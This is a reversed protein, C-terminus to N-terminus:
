RGGTKGSFVYEQFDCVPCYGIKQYIGNSTPNLLDAFLFCFRNSEDLAKQSVAAVCASAYGKNRHEPPTYVLSLRVGHLTKGVYAAMSLPGDDEFLFLRGEEVARSTMKEPDEPYDPMAEDVFKKAWSTALGIEDDTFARLHGLPPEPLPIVKDLKYMKMGLRPIVECGQVACWAKAFALACETRGIVGPLAVSRHVSDRVVLAIAEDDLRTVILNHPPTHMAAGIVEGNNDSLSAMYVESANENPNEVLSNLVSIFLNNEVEDALLLHKTTELFESAISHNNLNMTGM